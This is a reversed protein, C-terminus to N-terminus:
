CKLNRNHMSTGDMSPILDTQTLPLVGCSGARTAAATIIDSALAGAQRYCASVRREIPHLAQDVYHVPACLPLGLGQLGAEQPVRAERLQAQALQVHQAAAAGFGRCRLAAKQLHPAM